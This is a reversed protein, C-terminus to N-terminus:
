ESEVEYRYMKVLNLLDKVSKEEISHDINFIEAYRKLRYLEIKIDRIKRDLRSVSFLWSENHNRRENLKRCIERKTIKHISSILIIEIFYPHLYPIFKKIMGKEQCFYDFSIQTEKKEDNMM